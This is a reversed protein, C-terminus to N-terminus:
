NWTGRIARELDMIADMEKSPVARVEKILTRRATEADWSGSVLPNYVKHRRDTEMSQEYGNLMTLALLNMGRRILSKDGDPFHSIRELRAMVTQDDERRHDFIATASQALLYTTLHQTSIRDSNSCGAIAPIAAILKATDNSRLAELEGLSLRLREAVIHTITNWYTQDFIMNSDRFNLM